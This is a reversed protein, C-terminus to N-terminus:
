PARKPDISLFRRGAERKFLALLTSGVPEVVLSYSGAHLGWVAPDLGPLDDEVISRDQRARATSPMSPAVTPGLM